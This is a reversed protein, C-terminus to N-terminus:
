FRLGSSRPRCCAAPLQMKAPRDHPRLCAVRPSATHNVAASATSAAQETAPEPPPRSRRSCISWHSHAFAACGIMMMRSCHCYCCCCCCCRCCRCGLGLGVGVRAVCRPRAPVGRRGQACVDRRWTSSSSSSSSSTPARSRAALSPGSVVLAHHRARSSASWRRVALGPSWCGLRVPGYFRRGQAQSYSHIYM